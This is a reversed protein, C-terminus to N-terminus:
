YDGAELEAIKNHCHITARDVAPIVNNSIFSATTTIDERTNKIKTCLLSDNGDLSYVENLTGSFDDLSGKSLKLESVISNLNAKAGNYNSIADWYSDIAEEVTM